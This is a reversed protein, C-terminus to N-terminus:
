KNKLYFIVLISIILSIFLGILISKFLTLEIKDLPLVPYDVIQILPTEKRLTIKSMELNAVLQTLIASNAQIDINRKTSTTKTILFAPNFNYAKDNANAVGDIAINLENKV